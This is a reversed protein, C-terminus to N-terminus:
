QWSISRIFCHHLYRDRCFLYDTNMIEEIDTSNFLFYFLEEGEPAYVPKKTVEEATMTLTKGDNTSNDTSNDDINFKM